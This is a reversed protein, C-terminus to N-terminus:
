SLFMELKVATFYPAHGPRWVGISNSMGQQLWFERVDYGYSIQPAWSNTSFHHMRAIPDNIPQGSSTLALSANGPQAAPTVLGLPTVTHDAEKRM